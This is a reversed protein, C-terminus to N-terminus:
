RDLEAEWIIQASPPQGDTRVQYNAWSLHSLGSSSRSRGERLDNGAARASVSIVRRAQADVWSEDAVFARMRYPERTAALSQRALSTRRLFEFLERQVESEPFTDRARLQLLQGTADHRDCEMLAAAVANERNAECRVALFLKTTAAKAESCFTVFEEVFRQGPSQTSAPVERVTLHVDRGAQINQSSAGARNTLSIGNEKRRGFFKIVAGIAFVGLGSFVWEKNSLVWTWYREFMTLATAGKM